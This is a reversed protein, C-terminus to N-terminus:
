GRLVRRRSVPPAAFGWCLLPHGRPICLLSHSPLGGIAAEAKARTADSDSAFSGISGALDIGPLWASRLCHLIAPVLRLLLRPLASRTPPLPLRKLRATSMVGADVIGLLPLSVTASISSWSVIPDAAPVPIVSATARAPVVLLPRIFTALESFQQQQLTMSSRMSLVLAALESFFSPGPTTPAVISPM